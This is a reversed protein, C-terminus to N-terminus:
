HWHYTNKIRANCGCLLVIARLATIISEAKPVRLESTPSFLVLVLLRRPGLRYTDMYHIIM